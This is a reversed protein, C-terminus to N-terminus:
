LKKEGEKEIDWKYISVYKTGSKYLRMQKPVQKVEIFHAGLNEITKISAKNEPSATISLEKAGYLAAVQALLRAAKEAYKNGRSFSFIEYEINGLFYNDDTEKLRLGCQGVKLDDSIRYIMYYFQKTTELGLNLKLEIEGDSLLKIDDVSKEYSM